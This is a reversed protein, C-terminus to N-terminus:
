LRGTILLDIQKSSGAFLSVQTDKLILKDKMNNIAFSESWAKGSQAGLVIPAQFLYIRQAKQNTLFMGLVAAGGEVYVSRIKESWLNKELEELYKESKPTQTSWIIKAKDQALELNAKQKQDVVFYINEPLHAKALPSHEYQSLFHKYAKAHADLIVVKIQKHELKAVRINLTPNDQIFTGAGIMVADHAARLVHAAQRSEENTIWKSEGNKLAMQGDLSSAVKLSFFIKQERFNWLFHEAVQELDSQLSLDSFLDAYVATAIGSQRLIEAGQGAVLPNPDQLGYIVQAVPYRALTKACSPTRGEHACPELTVFVKAGRLIQCLEEENGHCRQRLKELAQAEAHALGVKAHYGYAILHDQSDLIVCGVLPNPSVFGTGLYAVEIALLMAQQANLKKGLLAAEQQIDIGPDFQLGDTKYIPFFCRPRM